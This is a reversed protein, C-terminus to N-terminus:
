KWLFPPYADLDDRLYRALLLAQVYPIMGWQLKENLYPHTLSERKREQWKKLLSRRAEDRLLVAGSERFEFDERSIMRNNVLSLVFRDAM